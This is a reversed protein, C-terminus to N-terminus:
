PNENSNYKPLEVGFMKSALHVSLTAFTIWKTIILKTEAPINTFIILALNVVSALYLFVRFVWKAWLPTVNKIQRFGFKVKAKKM